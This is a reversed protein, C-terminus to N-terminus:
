LPSIWANGEKQMATTLSPGFRPFKYDSRVGNFELEL